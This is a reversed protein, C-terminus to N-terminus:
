AARRVPVVTRLLRACRLLFRVSRPPRAKNARVDLTVRRCEPAIGLFDFLAGQGAVANLAETSFVRFSRPYATELEASRRYYEDWYRGIAEAKDAESYKPYCQDWKDLKWRAGDHRTWHNRRATWRLYSEITAKRDRKL